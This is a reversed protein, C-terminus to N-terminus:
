GCPRSRVDAPSRAQRLEADVRAVSGQDVAMDGGLEAVWRPPRLRNRIAAPVMPMGNTLGPSATASAPGYRHVAAQTAADLQLIDILEPLRQEAALLDNV